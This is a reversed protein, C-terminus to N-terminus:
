RNLPWPRRASRKAMGHWTQVAGIALEDLDYAFVTEDEVAVVAGAMLDPAALHVPAHLEDRDGHM